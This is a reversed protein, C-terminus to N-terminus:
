GMSAGFLRTEARAGQEYLIYRECSSIPPPMMILNDGRPIFMSEVIEPLPVTLGLTFCMHNLYKTWNDLSKKIFEVFIREVRKIDVPM